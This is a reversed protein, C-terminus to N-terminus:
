APPPRSSFEPLFGATPAAPAPIRVAVGRLGALRAASDRRSRALLALGLATATTVLALNAGFAAVTGPMVAPEFVAGASAGIAQLHLLVVFLWLVLSKRGVSGRNAPEAIQGSRPGRSNGLRRLALFGALMLAGVIWRSAVALDHFRGDALRNWFLWLHFLVLVLVM